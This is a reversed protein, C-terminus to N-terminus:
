NLVPMGLSYRYSRRQRDHDREQSIERWSQAIEDLVQAGPKGGRFAAAALQDMSDYYRESADIRLMAVVNGQNLSERVATLYSATGSGTWGSAFWIATDVLHSLRCPGLGYAPATVYQLMRERSTLFMLFDFAADAHASSTPVSGLLGNVISVRNLKDAPFEAWTQKDHQYVRESAPLPLCAVRGSSKNEPQNNRSCLWQEALRSSGLALAAHGATFQSLTRDDSGPTALFRAVALWKQMAEQFAPGTALPEFTNVDFFFSFNQPAKGYAAARATLADAASSIAVGHDPEGDGDLDQGHFYEALQDFEKWTAPPELARGYKEQFERKRSEDAFLDLRYYVLLCDASVPLAHDRRDWTVLSERVGRAIGVYEYPAADLVEKPVKMAQRAAVVNAMETAPFIVIDGRLSSQQALASGPISGQPAVLDGLEIAQVQVQGGTQAAWEGRQDEIWSRLTESQPILVNLTVGRFRTKIDPGTPPKSDCGVLAV